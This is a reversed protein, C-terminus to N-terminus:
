KMKRKHRHCRKRRARDALEDDGSKIGPLGSLFAGGFTRSSSSTDLDVLEPGCKFVVLECDEEKLEIVVSPPPTTCPDIAILRYSGFGRLRVTASFTADCPLGDFATVGAKDSVLTMNTNWHEDDAVKVLAGPLVGGERDVVKVHL